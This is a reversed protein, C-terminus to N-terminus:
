VGATEGFGGFIADIASALKRSRRRGFSLFGIVGFRFGGVM